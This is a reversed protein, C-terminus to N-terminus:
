CDAMGIHGCSKTSSSGVDSRSQFSRHPAKSHLAFTSHASSIKSNKLRKDAVTVQIQSELVDHKLASNGKLAAAAKDASINEASMATERSQLTAILIFTSM